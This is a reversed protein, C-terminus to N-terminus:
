GVREAMAAVLVAAGVVAVAWVVLLRHKSPVRRIVTWAPASSAEYDNDLSDLRRAACAALGSESMQASMPERSTECGFYM